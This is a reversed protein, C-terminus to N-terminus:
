AAQTLVGRLRIANGDRHDDQSIFQLAPADGAATPYHCGTRNGEL